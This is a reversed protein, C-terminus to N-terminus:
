FVGLIMQKDTVMIEYGFIDDKVILGRVSVTKNALSWVFSPGGMLYTVNKRFVLKFGQTWSKNEFMVAFNGPYRASELINCVFGEFTVVQGLFNKYNELTIVNPIFASTSSTQSTETASRIDTSQCSVCKSSNIEKLIAYNESHYFVKCKYCQYLGRRADLKEGTLADQLDEFKPDSTISSEIVPRFQIVPRSSSRPPAPVPKSSVYSSPTSRTVPPTPRPSYTQTTSPSNSSNPINNYINRSNEKKTTEPHDYKYNQIVNYLIVGLIIIVIVWSCFTDM